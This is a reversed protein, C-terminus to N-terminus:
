KHANSLSVSFIFQGSLGVQEIHLIVTNKDQIGRKLYSVPGTLSNKTM